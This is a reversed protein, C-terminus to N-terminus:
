ICCSFAKIALPSKCPQDMVDRAGAAAEAEQTLVAARAHRSVYVCVQMLDDIDGKSSKRLFDEM